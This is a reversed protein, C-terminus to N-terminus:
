EKSICWDNRKIIELSDGVKLRGQIQHIVNMGFYVKHNRKRFTSLTKIPEHEVKEGTDPNVNPIPCRSCPKVGLMPINEINFTDWNDEDFPSCGTVVINPRFRRMDVPDPLRKNLVELSAESVLLLPFGDAFGTRDGQKAYELDCQRVVEDGIYVLHCDTDLAESLWNDSDDSVLNALVSDGWIIVPMTKDSAKPVKFDKKGKMSLILQGSENVATQILAMKPIKRQSLFAGDPSVLMWRRDYELGMSDLKSKEVSIGALSKVPYIYLSSIKINDNM